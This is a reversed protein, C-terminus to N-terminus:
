LGIDKPVFGMKQLAAEDAGLEDEQPRGFVCHEIEHRVLHEIFREPTRLFEKMGRDLPYAIRELAYRQEQDTIERKLVIRKIGSQEEIFSCGIMDEKTNGLNKERAYRYPNDSPVFSEDSLDNEKLIKNILTKYKETYIDSM